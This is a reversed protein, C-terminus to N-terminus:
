ELRTHMKLSQKLVSNQLISLAKHTCSLELHYQQGRRLEFAGWLLKCDVANQAYIRISFKERSGVLNAVHFLMKEILPLNSLITTIAKMNFAM